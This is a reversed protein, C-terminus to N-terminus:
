VRRLIDPAPREEHRRLVEGTEKSSQPESCLTRWVDIQPTSNKTERKKGYSIQKM